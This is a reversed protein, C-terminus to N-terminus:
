QVYPIELKIKRKKILCKIQVQLAESEIKNDLELNRNNGAIILQLIPVKKEGIIVHHGITLRLSIDMYDSNSFTFFTKRLLKSFNNQDMKLRPLEQDILAKIPMKTVVKFQMINAALLLGIDTSTLKTEDLDKFVGMMEKRYLRLAIQEDNMYYVGIAHFSCMDYSLSIMTTKHGYGHSAYSLALAYLEERTVYSLLVEAMTNIYVIKEKGDFVIFPNNDWEIYPEFDVLSTNM